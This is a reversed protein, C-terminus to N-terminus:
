KYGEPRIGCQVILNNGAEIFNSGDFLEWQQNSIKPLCIEDDFLFAIGLLQGVESTDGLVWFGDQQTWWISRADNQYWPRGQILDEQRVFFGYISYIAYELPGNHFVEFSDCCDSLASILLPQATLCNEEM